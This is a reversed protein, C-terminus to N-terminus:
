DTGNREEERRFDLDPRRSPRAAVHETRWCGVWHEPEVECLVADGHDDSRDVGDPRPMAPWWPIVGRDHDPLQRFEDPDNVIQDVTTLRRRTEGPRPISSFLGRTYPHLPSEFLDHVRAYEVTRGGYMVCVVDATEAVVGLDHTILMLAMDRDRQLRVLLKLIQAQVTVDLATSPEDALLLSPRCSLAMAIMARQCMGGSLEHPHARLRRQPDPIGVASLADVAIAAAEKRGVAQHLQVAEIIQDGVSYVPNLSTMPEQFIMAIEGGRVDRMQKEDVSLLDRGRFRVSGREIRAPPCPV